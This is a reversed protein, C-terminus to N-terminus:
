LVSADKLLVVALAFHLRKLTSTCASCIAADKGQVRQRFSGPLAPQVSRLGPVGEDERLLSRIDDLLGTSIYALSNVQKVAHHM